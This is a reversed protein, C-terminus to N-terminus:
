LCQEHRGGGRTKWAIHIADFFMRIMHTFRMRSHEDNIWTVPVEVITFGHHQARRLLEVDFSYRPCNLEAFLCQATDYRFLKFGNQTDRVGTPAITRILMRFVAGLVERALNQKTTIVSGPVHRSGVM